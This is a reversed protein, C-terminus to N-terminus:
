GHPRAASPAGMRNPAIGTAPSGVVGPATTGVPPSPNAPTQPAATTPPMVVEPTSTGTVSGIGNAAYAAIPPLLAILLAGCKIVNSTM